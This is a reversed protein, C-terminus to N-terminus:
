KRTIKGKFGAKQLKKKLKNFEKKTMTSKSVVISSKKSLGNFAGKSFSFASAKRKKGSITIKVKTAKTGKFANKKIVTKKANMLRITKVKSGKFAAKAITFTPAATKVQVQTVVRGKKSNFVGKTGNGLRTIPVEKNDEDRAVRIVVTKASKAGAKSSVSQVVASTESNVKTKVTKNIHDQTNSDIDTAEDYGPNTDGSVPGDTPSGAAGCTAVLSFVMALVLAVAMVKRFFGM